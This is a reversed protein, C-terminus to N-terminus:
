FRAVLSFFVRPDRDGEAAVARTLPKAVELSGSVHETVTFRAGVGAATASAAGYEGPLPQHNWVRGADYFGYLQYNDLGINTSREGYQLEVKAALGSDGTLESPDYARVFNVGGIGFQESALLSTFGYQGTVAAMMSWNGGLSQVRQADAILKTFDSRGNARSLNPAGPTRADLIDLGQSLQADFVNVGDWHDVFDYVAGAQITRIRDNLLPVAGNFLDTHLDTAVFGASFTM